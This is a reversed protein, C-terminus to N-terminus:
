KAGIMCSISLLGCVIGGDKIDLRLAALALLMFGAATLSYIIKSRHEYSSM